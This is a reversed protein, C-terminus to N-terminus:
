LAKLLQLIRLDEEMSSGVCRFILFQVILQNEEKLNLCEKNLRKLELESEPLKYRCVEEFFIEQAKMFRIGANSKYFGCIVKPDM